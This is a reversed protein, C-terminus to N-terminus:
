FVGPTIKLPVRVEAWDLYLHELDSSFTMTETMKHKEPKATVRLVDKKEDYKYAGWQESDSNFIFTWEKEGPITFLSYTGAKIEKGNVKMDESFTITTANNAGTRWVKNYPVLEGFIKRGRVSPQHYEVIVKEGGISTELKAPPSKPKEKSDKQAQLNGISFAAILALAFLKIKM